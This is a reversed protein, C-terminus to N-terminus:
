MFCCWEKERCDSCKSFVRAYVYFPEAGTNDCFQRGTKPGPCELHHMIRISTPFNRHNCRHHLATIWCYKRMEDQKPQLTPSSLSPQPKPPNSISAPPLPASPFHSSSPSMKVKIRSRRPLFSLAEAKRPPATPDLLVTRHSSTYYSCLRLVTLKM